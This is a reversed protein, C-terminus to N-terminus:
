SGRKPLDAWRGDPGIPLHESSVSVIHEHVKHVKGTHPHTYQHTITGRYTGLSGPRFIGENEEPYRSIGATSVFTDKDAEYRIIHHERANPKEYSRAFSEAVPPESSASKAADFHFTDGSKMGKLGKGVYSPIGGYMKRPERNTNGPRFVRMLAATGREVGEESHHMIRAHKDTAGRDRRLKGNINRSSRWGEPDKSPTETYGKISIKDEDTLQPKIADHEHFDGNYKPLYGMPSGISEDISAEARLKHSKEHADKAKEDKVQDIQGRFSSHVTEHGPGLSFDPHHTPKNYEKFSKM